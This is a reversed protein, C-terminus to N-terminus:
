REYTPPAFLHWGAALLFIMLSSALWAIGIAPWPVYQWGPVWTWARALILLQCLVIAAIFGFWTVSAERERSRIMKQVLWPLLVVLTMFGFPLSALLEGMVALGVLYRLPRRATFAIVGAATVPLPLWSITDYRLAWHGILLLIAALLIFRLRM